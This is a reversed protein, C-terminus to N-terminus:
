VEDVVGGNYGSTGRKWLVWSTRGRREIRSFTRSGGKVCSSVVKDESLPWLLLPYLKTDEPYEPAASDESPVLIM